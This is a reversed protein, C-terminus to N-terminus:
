FRSVCLLGIGITLLDEPIAVAIDPVRLARVIGARAHYGAFAGAIGGIAGIAAGLWLAAGGAVALCAGSLAGTIFRASLGVMATRPPTGPLKDAVLEFLALATFIVVAATSGMFALPSNHLNIWGLHAAWAVVAPATLSRLGATFGIVLCLVLTVTSSM